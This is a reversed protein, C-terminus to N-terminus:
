EVAQADDIKAALAKLLSLMVLPNGQKIANVRTLAREFTSATMM